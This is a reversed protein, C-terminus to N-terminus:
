RTRGVGILIVYDLTFGLLRNRHIKYDQVGAEALLSTLERRSLLRMYSGAAWSKGVLRLYTDFISKPLFHLIPTRTHVEVPFFRNPTTVFARRGVRHIERLFHLQASRDGVHEVVANSWVFDFALDDFPFTYGDYMVAKIKPYRESFKRPDEVGLATLMDPYPYHKEIYNDTISYEEDSYGVDLVKYEPRPPMERELLRWKRHRNWHSVRNRARKWDAVDSEPPRHQANVPEGHEDGSGAKM